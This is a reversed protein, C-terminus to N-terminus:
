TGVFVILVRPDKSDLHPTCVEPFRNLKGM